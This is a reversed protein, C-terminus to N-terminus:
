FSTDVPVVEMSHDGAALAPEELRALLWCPPRPVLSGAM